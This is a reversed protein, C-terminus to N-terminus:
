TAPGRGDSLREVTALLGESPLTVLGDTSTDSNAADRLIARAAGVSLAPANSETTYYDIRISTAGTGAFHLDARFGVAAPEVTVIFRSGLRTLWVPLGERQRKWGIPHTTTETRHESM